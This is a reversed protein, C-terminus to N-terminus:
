PVAEQECAPELLHRRKLDILLHGKLLFRRGILLPRILNSRDVLNVETVLYVDGVCIGLTVTPRDEDVGPASRIRAVRVLPRELHARRGDNGVVDFAMWKQGGREFQELNEANLSSTRAGSDLKAELVIGGPSIRAREIWGAVPAAEAQPMAACAVLMPLWAIVTRMPTM